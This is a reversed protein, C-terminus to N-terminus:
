RLLVLYAILGTVVVLAAVIPLMPRRAGGTMRYNSGTVTDMSLETEKRSLRDEEGGGGLAVPRVGQGLPQRTFRFTQGGVGIEDGEELLTPANVSHGNIRTGASGQAYLVFQQAESRVDAHFRSVTPDRVIIHSGVDRGISVSKKSLPYAAREATDVLYATGASSPSREPRPRETDELYVFAAAGAAIVDGHELRVGEHTVQKGNVTVIHHASSPRVKVQGDGGRTVTFHRASLDVNSFRFGAQTGSGVLTEGPPLERIDGDFDLFSM